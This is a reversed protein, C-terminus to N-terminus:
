AGSPQDPPATTDATHILHEAQSRVRQVTDNALHQAQQIADETAHKLELGRTNLQARTESRSKPIILVTALVGTAVGALVGVLVPLYDQQEMSSAGQRRVRSVFRAVGAARMRAPSPLMIWVAREAPAATRMRASSGTPAADIIISRMDSRECSGSTGSSIAAATSAASCEMSSAGGARNDSGSTGVPQCAAPRNSPWPRRSVCPPIRSVQAVASRIVRAWAPGPPITPSHAHIQHQCGRRIGGGPATRQRQATLQINSVTKIALRPSIASRIM